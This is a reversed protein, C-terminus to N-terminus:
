TSVVSEAAKQKKSKKKRRRSKWSCAAFNCGESSPYDRCMQPRMSYITCDRTKPDFHKCRYRHAKVPPGESKEIEKPAKDTFGLYVVMPALLHIDKYIPNPKGGNMNLQEGGARWRHYGAELEEPSLPIYFNQCCHGTCRDGKM